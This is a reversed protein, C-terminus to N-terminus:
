DRRRSRRRDPLTVGGSLDCDFRRRARWRAIDRRLHGYRACAYESKDTSVYRVRPKYAAFWDRWMGTGAGVDLVTRLEGGFWDILETIGRALHSVQRKSLVRTEKCEYFRDYYAADTVGKPAVHDVASAVGHKARTSALAGETM